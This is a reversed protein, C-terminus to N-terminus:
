AATKGNQDQKTEPIQIDTPKPAVPIKATFGLDTRKTRRDFYRTEVTDFVQQSPQFRFYAKTLIAGCFIACMHDVGIYEQTMVAYIIFGISATAISIRRVVPKMLYALGGFGAMVGLSAGVDVTATTEHFLSPSMWHFLPLMLLGTPLNAQLGFLYVVAALASGGIIELAGCFLALGVMNIILHSYNFHAFNSTVLIFWSNDFQEFSFGHQELIDPDINGNVDTTYVFTYINLFIMASSFKLRSFITELDLSAVPPLLVKGPSLFRALPKPLNQGLRWKRLIFGAQRFVNLDSFMSLIAIVHRIKIGSRPVALYVPEETSPLFKKKFHYLEKFRYTARVNEFTWKLLKNIRPFDSKDSSSLGALPSVGLSAMEYGQDKLAKLAHMVLADTVGNVSFPARILDHIFYGNRGFIKSCVLLGEVSDSLRAIFFKKEEAAKVPAVETLLRFADSGRTMFWKSLLENLPTAIAPTFVNELAIEEIIVGKKAVQRISSKLKSPLADPNYTALDFIPEHGIKILKYGQSVAADATIQDVALILVDHKRQQSFKTFRNIAEARQDPTCLPDTLMLSTRGIDKYGILALDHHHSDGGLRTIFHSMSEYLHYIGNSSRGYKALFQKIMDPTPEETPRYSSRAQFRYYRRGWAWMIGVILLFAAALPAMYNSWLDMM